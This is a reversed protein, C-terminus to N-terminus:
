DCTIKRKRQQNFVFMLAAAMLLLGSITFVHTGMGGSEPLERAVHNTVVWTIEPNKASGDGSGGTTETEVSYVAIYYKGGIQIWSPTNQDVITVERIQYDEASITDDANLLPVTFEGSWNGGTLKLVKAANNSDTVISSGGQGDNKYLVVYVTDDTHALGDSWVKQVPVKGEYVDADNTVAVEGYVGNPADKYSTYIANEAKGIVDVDSLNQGMRFTVNGTGVAYYSNTATGVEMSKLSYDGEEETLTYTGRPLNEVTVSATYTTQGETLPITIKIATGETAGYQFAYPGDQTKVIKGKDVSDSESMELNFTFEAETM